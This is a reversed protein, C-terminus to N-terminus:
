FNNNQIIVMRQVLQNRFLTVDDSWTGNELERSRLQHLVGHPGCSDDAPMHHIIFRKPQAPIIVNQNDSPLDMCVRVTIERSGQGSLM